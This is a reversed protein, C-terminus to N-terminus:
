YKTPLYLFNCLIISELIMKCYYLKGCVLIISELIMKCHMHCSLKGCVCSLQLYNLTFVSYFAAAAVLMGPLLCDYACLMM